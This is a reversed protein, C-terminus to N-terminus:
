HLRALDAWFTPYTKAVCAPNRVWVNPRRLGILALAMAMRHDDYTDFEVRAVGPSCDIGGAPPTITMADDDGRVSTEVSVGVKALEAQMAAIRDTEKVRLTRLGRLVSSGRAFSAVVGLTMAADPVPACDAMIPRLREPGRCAIVGPGDARRTVEVGMRELLDPFRTDGQLSDPRLGAVRVTAGPLIAGAGWFYTPM